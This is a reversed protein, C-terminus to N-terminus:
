LQGSIGIILPVEPSDVARAVSSNDTHRLDGDLWFRVVACFARNTFHRHLVSDRTIDVLCLRRLPKSQALIRICTVVLLYLFAGANRLRLRTAFALEVFRVQLDEHVDVFRMAAREGELLHHLVDFPILKRSAQRERASLSIGDIRAGEMDIAFGIHVHPITHNLTASRFVHHENVAVDCGRSRELVGYHAFIILEPRGCIGDRVKLLRPRLQTINKRTVLMQQLWRSDFADPIQMNHKGMRVSLHVFAAPFFLLLLVSRQGTFFPLKVARIHTRGEWTVM